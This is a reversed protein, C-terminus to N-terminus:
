VTLQAVSENLRRSFADVLGQITAREHLNESYVFNFRLQGFTVESSVAIPYYRLGTPHHTPGVPETAHVFMPVSPVEGPADQRGLHNFLVQATPLRQFAARVSTESTMFRLLDFDMGHRLLSRIQDRVWSTRGDSGPEPRQVVVPNYSILFGVTSLPDTDASLAEDRGHGIVDILAADAGTWDWMAEALAGVLVEAKHTVGAPGRVIADTEAPTLVLEVFRASGNTNVGDPYDFPIPRIDDWRLGLWADVGSLVEPSDARAQLRWAWEVFSPPSALVQAPTRRPGDYLRAFDDWFPQWALHDFAFHHVVVLLRQRGAGLDFLEV